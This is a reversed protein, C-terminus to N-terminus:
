NALLYKAHFLGTVNGSQMKKNEKWCHNKLMHQQHKHSLAHLEDVQKLMLLTARSASPASSLDLSYNTKYSCSCRRRCRSSSRERETGPVSVLARRATSPLWTGTMSARYRSQCRLSVRWRWMSIRLPSRTQRLFMVLMLSPLFANMSASPM